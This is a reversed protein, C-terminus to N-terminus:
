RYLWDFLGGFDLVEDQNGGEEREGEM